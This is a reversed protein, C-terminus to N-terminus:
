IIINLYEKPCLSCGNTKIYDDMSQDTQFGTAAKKQM